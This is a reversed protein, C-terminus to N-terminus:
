VSLKRWQYLIARSPQGTGCRSWTRYSPKATRSKLLVIFFKDNCILSIYNTMMPSYYHVLALLRLIFRLLSGLGGLGVILVTANKLNKQGEIGVDELLIQSSYRLFEADNLM